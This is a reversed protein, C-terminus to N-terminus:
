QRLCRLIKWQQKEVGRKGPNGGGYGLARCDKRKRDALSRFFSTHKGAFQGESITLVFNGEGLVLHIGDFKLPTGHMAAERLKDGLAGAGDTRRPNHQIYKGGGFYNGFKDLDVNVFIDEVFSRV